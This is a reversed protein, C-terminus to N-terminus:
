FSLWKNSISDRVGKELQSTKTNEKLCDNDELPGRAQSAQYSEMKSTIAGEGTTIGLWFWMIGTTFASDPFLPSSEEMSLYFSTLCSREPQFWLITLMRKFFPCELCSKLNLTMVTRLGRPLKISLEKCFWCMQVFNIQKNKRKKVGNSLIRTVM